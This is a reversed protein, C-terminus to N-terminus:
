VNQASFLVKQQGLDRIHKDTITLMLNSRNGKKNIKKTSWM